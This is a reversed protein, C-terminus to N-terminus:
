FTKLFFVLKSDSPSKKRSFPVNVYQLPSCLSGLYLPCYISFGVFIVHKSFHLPLFNTPCLISSSLTSTLQCSSLQQPWSCSIPQLRSPIWCAKKRKKTAGVARLLKWALSQVRAVAIVISSGWGASGGPFEKHISKRCCWVTSKVGALPGVIWYFKSVLERSISKSRVPYTNLQCSQVWGGGSWIGIAFGLQRDSTSRVLWIFIPLEWLGGRSNSKSSDSM